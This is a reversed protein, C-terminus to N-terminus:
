DLRIGGYLTEIVVKSKTSKDKALLEKWNLKMIKFRVRFLVVRLIISRRM